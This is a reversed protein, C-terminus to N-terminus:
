GKLIYQKVDQLKLQNINYRQKTLSHVCDKGHRMHHQREIPTHLIRENNKLGWMERIVVVENKGNRRPVSYGCKTHVWLREDNVALIDSIMLEQWEQATRGSSNYIDVAEQGKTETYPLVVSQTPKQEGKRVETM